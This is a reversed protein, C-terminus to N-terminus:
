ALPGPTFLSKHWSGIVGDDNELASSRLTEWGGQQDDLSWYKEL